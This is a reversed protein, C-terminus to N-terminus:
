RKSINTDKVRRQYENLFIAPNGDSDDVMEQLITAVRNARDYDLQTPNYKSGQPVFPDEQGDNILAERLKLATEVYHLNTIGEKNLEKRLSDINENNQQINNNDVYEQGNVLANLLKKNEEKLSNYKTREVSNQKLTKIANIYDENTTSDEVTENRLIEEQETM